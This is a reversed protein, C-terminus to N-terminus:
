FQAGGVEAQINGTRTDPWTGYLLTGVSVHTRRLGLYTGGYGDNHPDSLFPSLAFNPGFNLGGNTSRAIFPQYKIDQPDNKRDMFTVLVSGASDVSMWPFFEDGSTSGSVRVPAGWTVSGNVSRSVLVQVQSGTYTYFAVYLNGANPGNSNDIAIVPIDSMCEHPTNPLSGYGCRGNPNATMKATAVNVPTSWTNGGDASKSFLTTGTVDACDARHLRQTCTFWSMYLTGDFGIALTPLASHLPIQAQFVTVPTWTKGADSSHAVMTFQGALSIFDAAVYLTNKFPSSLSTDIALTMDYVQDYSNLADIVTVPASWTLGNDTSSSIVARLRTPDSLHENGGAYAINNADYGVFPSQTGEGAGIDGPEPSLCSHAWTSGADGTSHIGVYKCDTNDDETAVLLQSPNALNVAILDTPNPSGGESAQVNPFVCPASNCTLSAATLLSQANLCACALVFLVALPLIKTTACIAAKL